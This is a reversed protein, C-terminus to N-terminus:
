QHGIKQEAAHHSVKNCISSLELALKKLHIEDQATIKGEGETKIYALLADNILSQYNGGEICKGKFWDIIKRDLRITIREKNTKLFPGKKGEDFSFENNM